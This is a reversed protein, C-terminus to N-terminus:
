TRSSTLPWRESRKEELEKTKVDNSSVRARRRGIGLKGREVFEGLSGYLAGKRDRIITKTVGYCTGPVESNSADRSRGIFNLHSLAFWLDIGRRDM